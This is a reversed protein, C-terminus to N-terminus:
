QIMDSSVIHTGLYKPKQHNFYYKVNDNPIVHCYTLHAEEKIFQSFM